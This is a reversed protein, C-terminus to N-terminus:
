TGALSGPPSLAAGARREGARGTTGGPASFLAEVAAHGRARVAGDVIAACDDALRLGVELDHTVMVVTRGASRLEGVLSELLASGAPDLGSFPEDLVWVKPDHLLSRILTARKAMGQSFTRVQDNRRAYLGIKESLEDGRERIVAAPLGYLEGYFCLNEALTLDGRLFHDHFVVGLLSRVKPGEKEPNRGLVEFRGSSPKMRTSLIKLFTSKGAGNPGFIAFTSGPPIELDVGRLVERYGFRKTIAV